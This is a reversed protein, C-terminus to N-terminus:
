FKSKIDQHQLPEGCKFIIIPEEGIQIISSKQYIQKMVIPMIDMIIIQHLEKTRIFSVTDMEEKTLM